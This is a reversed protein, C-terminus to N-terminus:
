MGSVSILLVKVGRGARGGRAATGRAAGAAALTGATKDAQFVPRFPASVM